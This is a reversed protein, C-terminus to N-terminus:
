IMIKLTIRVRIIKRLKYKHDISKGYCMYLVQLRMWLCNSPFCERHLARSMPSSVRCSPTYTEKRSDPRLSSHIELIWIGDIYRPRVYAAPNGSYKKGSCSSSDCCWWWWWWAARWSVVDRQCCIRLNGAENASLVGEGDDNRYEVTHAKGNLRAWCTHIYIHAYSTFTPLAHPLELVIKIHGVVRTAKRHEPRPVIIIFCSLLRKEYIDLVLSWAPVRRVSISQM